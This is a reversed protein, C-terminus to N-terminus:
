KALRYFIPNSNTSQPLAILWQGNTLQPVASTVTMWNGSVLNTTQQLTFGSSAVPWSFMFNTGSPSIALNPPAEPTASAEVSNTSEGAINLASVVYYYASGNLLGTNTYGTTTVNTLIIYPGGSSTARKLNYSTAGSVSPWSLAVQADGAVATLGPPRGPVLPWGPASVNDFTATCLTSSDHATVALGVYVTSPMTTITTPSGQQTWTVGNPSRYATFSNGSRVLRVWYPATLGTTNNNASSGGTSTRYQWTVGNNPTVAIFANASDANLSARIMVGAKSWVNINEASAVRATITCNNTALLYAFHFADANGWIDAGAGAVTFPSSGYSVNGAQGVSGIDLHQWPGAPATSWVNDFTATCSDANNHATVPLGVFVASGMSITQAAGVQSWAGGDASIYGRFTNGSRV